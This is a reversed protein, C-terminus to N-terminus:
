YCTEEEDFVTFCCKHLLLNKLGSKQEKTCCIFFIKNSKYSWVEQLQEAVLWILKKLFIGGYALM